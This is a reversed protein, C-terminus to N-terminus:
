LLGALRAISTIRSLHDRQIRLLERDGYKRAVRGDDHGTMADHFEEPIGAERCMTKFTHRFGHLPRVPSDINATHKLYESWRKGFNHGYWGYANPSIGPFLQGDQPLDRVYEIFGLSILDPHLALLRHSGNTKVTRGLNLDEDDTASLIDIHWVGDESQRVERAQLQAIEERRAGTYCLLLPIWYWADGFASRPSRWNKTFIPSTFIQKLEDKTYSNRPATRSAKGIARSLQFTVKSEIVVNETILRLTQGFSLVASLHVLKNKITTTSLRPLGEAEAKTIQELAGMSRPVGKSPIRRLHSLFEHVHATTIASVPLDGLLEIFRGITPKYERIRDLIDRSTGELDKVGQEWQLLLQSLPVSTAPQTVDKALPASAAALAPRKRWDGDSRAEAINCLNIWSKTFEEVLARYAPSNAAPLPLGQRQLETRILPLAIRARSADDDTDIAVDSLPFYEGDHEGLYSAILSDDTEWAKLEAEAWRDALKPADSSLVKPNGKLQEKAAALLEECRAAEAAHLPRAENLSKTKLSVKWERKGLLARLPEPVVRRYYYVGTKPCKFPQAMVSVKYAEKTRSQPRLLLNLFM